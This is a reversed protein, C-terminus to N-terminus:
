GWRGDRVSPYPGPGPMTRPEAAPFRVYAASGAAFEEDPPVPGPSTFLVAPGHTACVIVRRGNWRVEDGETLAAAFGGPSNRIAAAVDATGVPPSSTRATLVHVLARAYQHVSLDPAGHPLELREVHGGAYRIELIEM